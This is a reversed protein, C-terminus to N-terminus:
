AIVIKHVDNKIWILGKRLKSRVKKLINIIIGEIPYGENIKVSQCKEVSSIVM